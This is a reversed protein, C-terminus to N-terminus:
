EWIMSFHILHTPLLRDKSSTVIMQTVKFFDKIQTEAEKNESHPPDHSEQLYYSLLSNFKSGLHANFFM